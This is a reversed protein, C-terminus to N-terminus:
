EPEEREQIPSQPSHSPENLKRKKKPQGEEENGTVNYTKSLELIKNVYQNYDPKLRKPPLTWGNFTSNLESLGADKLLNDPRWSKYIKAFQPIMCLVDADIHPAQDKNLYSKVYYANLLILLLLEKNQDEEFL